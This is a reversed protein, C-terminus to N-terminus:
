FLKAVRLNLRHKEKSGSDVSLDRGYQVQWQVTPTIFSTVGLRGYRTDLRDGQRAGDIVNEAGSIRGVGASLATAPSLNYRLHAQTEYLRRQQRTARGPGYETNKGHVAVDAVVDLAWNANFHRIYALQLVGKWRNEGLNLPRSSDYRGVPVYVFPAVSLVDRSTADLVWKVPAGLIVDGAGSASGLGAADAAGSTRLRGFPVIVQPDVMMTDSLPIVHIVRALVVNSDLGFNGSVRVGNAYLDDRTAHQYYLLGITGAPYAEFDGASVEIAGAGPALLGACLALCLSRCAPLATRPFNSKSM